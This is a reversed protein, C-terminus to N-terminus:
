FLNGNKDGKRKHASTEASNVTYSLAKNKPFLM